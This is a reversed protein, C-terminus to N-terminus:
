GALGLHAATFCTRQMTPMCSAAFRFTRGAQMRAYPLVAPETSAQCLHICTRHCLFISTSTAQLMWPVLPLVTGCRNRVGSGAQSLERTLTLCDPLCADAAQPVGALQMLQRAFEQLAAMLCTYSEALLLALVRVALICTRDNLWICYNWPHAHM